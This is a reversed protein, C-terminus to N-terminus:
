RGIRLKVGRLVQELRVMIRPDGELHRIASLYCKISSHSLPESALFSVFQCLQHKSAPLCCLTEKSICIIKSNIPNFQPSFLTPYGLHLAFGVVAPYVCSWGGFKSLPLLSLGLICFFGVWPLTEFSHCNELQM